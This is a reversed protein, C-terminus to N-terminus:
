HTASTKVLDEFLEKLREYLRRYIPYLENYREHAEENPRFTEKIEIFKAASPIGKFVGVGIGAMITDGRPTGQHTALRHFPKGTVDAKIQLWIDSQSGGGTARIERVKIGMNEIQEINHRVGYATGELIARIIHERRHNLNLGFFLGRANTDWIPSREGSFYPLVILGGSGVPAKAAEMDLIKFVSIGTSKSALVEVEGLADRFWRMLNGTNSMAFGMGYKDPPIYPTLPRGAVESVSTCVGMCTSNGTMEMAQGDEVVGCGIYAAMGDSAGAVVPTGESLRTESAAKKTVHGIVETSLYLEPVLDGSMSHTELDEMLENRIKESKTKSITNMTYVDTFKFNLYAEGQSFVKFTKEAIKPENEKIWLIKGAIFSVWNAQQASYGKAARSDMWIMAPRLAKGERSMPLVVPALASVGIGLIRNSNIKTHDLIEKITEIAAQWWQEPPHEAWGPHPHSTSYERYAMSVVNCRTDCLVTKLGTTGIDIGLLFVSKKSVSLIQVGKIPGDVTNVLNM